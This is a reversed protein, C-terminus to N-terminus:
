TDNIMQSKQTILYNSVHSLCLYVRYGSKISIVSKLKIEGEIRWWIYTYIM